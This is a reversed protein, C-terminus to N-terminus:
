KLNAKVWANFSAANPAGILVKGNPAVLLPTSTFGMGVFLQNNAAITDDGAKCNTATDPVEGKMLDAWGANPNKSCLAKSAWESSGHQFAIPVASIPIAASVQGQMVSNAFSRCASCLPDEFIIVSPVGTARGAQVTLTAAKRVTALESASLTREAPQNPVPRDQGSISESTVNGGLAAALAQDSVQQPVARTAALAVAQEGAADGGQTGNQAAASRAEAAQALSAAADPSSGTFSGAAIRLLTQRQDPTLDNWSRAARLDISKSSVGDTSAAPTYASPQDFGSSHHSFILSFLLALVACVGAGRIVRSVIRGFLSRQSTLRTWPAGKVPGLLSYGVEEAVRRFHSRAANISGHEGLVRAQDEREGGRIIVAYRDSQAAAQAVAAARMEVSVTGEPSHATPERRSEVLEIAVDVPNLEPQHINRVSFLYDTLEAVWGQGYINTARWRGLRGFALVPFRSSLATLMNNDKSIWHIL